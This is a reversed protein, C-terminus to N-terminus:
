TVPITMRYFIKYVEKLARQAELTVERRKLGVRNIGAVRLPHGDTLLFPPIDKVVKSLVGIMTLRGVRLWQIVIVFAGFVAQDEIQVYGGLGTGNAFTNMDGITCNHGVHTGVMLYNDNGVITKQGEGTARHITSFERIINRDGIEVFSREGKYVVHQPPGGIVAYPHIDCDAGITTWGEVVVGAGIKTRPGVSVHEGIVAGPGITVGEALRANLHVSAGNMVHTSSM